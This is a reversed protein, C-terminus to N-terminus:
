STEQYVLAKIRHINLQVLATKYAHIKIKERIRSTRDRRNNPKTNCVEAPKPPPPQTFHYQTEHLKLKALKNERADVSFAFLAANVFFGLQIPRLLAAEQQKM